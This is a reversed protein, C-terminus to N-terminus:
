TGGPDKLVTLWEHNTKPADDVHISWRATIGHRPHQYWLPQTPRTPKAGLRLRAYEDFGKVTNSVIARPLILEQHYHGLILTDYDLGLAASQGSKKVEGRMIPGIAGIIGDGGATGLMDGHVLLYGHGFVRYPVDNSDRIDVHVRPDDAFHKQVMRAILYDFNKKNYRKFEPKPTNRGHNGCVMPLYVQGFAGKFMNVGEIIWDIAKISAPIQELEDTKALEPHLGGSVMDGVVNVVIGPYSGTHHNKALYITREFCKFIRREAVAMNYENYGHVENPEVVEGLHWDAWCTIPVEPTAKGRARTEARKLWGPSSRPTADVGGIVQRILDADNNDRHAQRLEKTLRHVEDTLHIIRAHEPTGGLSPKAAPAKAAADMGEPITPEIDHLVKARLFRQRFSSRTVKDKKGRATGMYIEHGVHLATAPGGHYSTLPHGQKLALNICDITAQAVEKSLKAQPM